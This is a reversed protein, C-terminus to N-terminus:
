RRRNGLRTGPPRRPLLSRSVMAAKESPALPQGLWLHYPEAHRTTAAAGQRPEQHRLVPVRAHVAHERLVTNADTNVASAAAASFAQFTTIRKNKVCIAASAAAAPSLNKASGDERGEDMDQEDPTQM